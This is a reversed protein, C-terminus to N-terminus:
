IQGPSGVGAAAAALARARDFDYHKRTVLRQAYLGGGAQISTVLHWGGYSDATLDRIAHFLRMRYEADVGPGTSIYKRLLAGVKDNELDGVSPMTIVSGGAIDHLHRVMLNFNAAGTYKAANTFLEDPFCYGEPTTHAHTLAADLGARLMTAHIAMEDIKERIHSVGLLGNSEAVLTALGVMEDAQRVMGSMGGLREWLGLCHAFVAAFQGQGDLFVREYPVFVDDLIVFGDPMSHKSSVPFHRVDETRPHYTVNVIRVGPSNVAVACTVAYDEEGSKMNKTPMVMLDHGFSAGSIHLKAGRLVLGDSTRRVVHVYADPDPQKSPPLSRDGKADTICETIRIDDRIAQEVYSQIREYCDPAASELKPAATLLTMLSQYTVSLLLDAEHLLPIRDRMAEPTRPAEILPNSAEPDASYYKDYGEAVQDVAAALAPVQELDAVQEGEFFTERGDRLSERYEIGTKM